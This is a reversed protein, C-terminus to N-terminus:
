LLLDLIMFVLYLFVLRLDGLQPIHDPVHLLIDGAQLLLDLLSVLGDLILYSGGGGVFGLVSLDLLSVLGDLILYSGGGGGWLGWYQCIWSLSSVM